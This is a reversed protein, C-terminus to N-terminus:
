NGSRADCLSNDVNGMYLGSETMQGRLSPELSSHFDDLITTDTFDRQSFLTRTVVGLRDSNPGIDANGEGRLLTGYRIPGFVPKSAIVVVAKQVTSRTVDAGKVLLDASSIQRNCRYAWTQM